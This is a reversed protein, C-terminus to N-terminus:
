WLGKGNFHTTYQKDSKQIHNTLWNRLFIMTEMPRKIGNESLDKRVGTVKAVFTDHEKKHTFYGPYGFKKMYEEETKFHYLSYAALDALVTGFVDSVKQERMADHLTNIHGILKKHQADIERVGVSLDDSWQILPM